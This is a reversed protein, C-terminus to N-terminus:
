ASVPALAHVFARMGALARELEAPETAYCLRLHGTGGPGFATGALVAVHQEALLREAFSECSLGTRELAGGIDPFCYFAGAPTACSVGDIANLGRVLLDRKARLGSVMRTVPEQSGTLAALGAYQVFTATCSVNNIVLTTMPEALRAPMVGYGLRWGTMSYGKSFGDVIVTREAMGPLAAISDRSGDYRIQGYVEDSIVWLDHRRALEALRALDQPEAVGGTPNHPLNLILLRTRPTIREAIAEVRPAFARTEDLPYYVPRGGAFRAVSEYIPFGPDPTLVEDGREILALAACFLMPKAGPTVIVNEPGARVGRAALSRAIADRLEPVGAALAYRTLGDRLARVGAEVVHPPTPMDPEGIELHVVKHGAAELRRAAALVLYAQETGLTDLRGAWHM